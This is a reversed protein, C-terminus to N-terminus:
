ATGDANVYGHWDDGIVGAKRYGDLLHPCPCGGLDDPSRGAVRAAVGALLEPFRRLASNVREQEGPEVMGEFLEGAVYDRRVTGEARNMIMAFSAYCLELERALFVEPALTSGVLEAGFSQLKRIEAATDLRPGETCAYIGGFRIDIDMSRMTESLADRLSPCFLPNQRLFGVGSSAFFTHPRNKTEDIVDELVAFSGTPFGEAISGCGTWSLVYQAGLDKLAYINARYNVAGAHTRFADAGHRSLFLYGGADTPVDFVPESPGFPTEQTGLDTGAVLGERLLSYAEGGGIIALRNM